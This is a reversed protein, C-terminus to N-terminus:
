ADGAQLAKSPVTGLAKCIGFLQAIEPKRAGLEILRYTNITMGAVGAVDQATMNLDLRLAKFHAATGAQWDDPVLSWAGPKVRGDTRKYVAAIFSPPPLRRRGLYHSLMSPSTSLQEALDALDEGTTAAWVKFPHPQKKM